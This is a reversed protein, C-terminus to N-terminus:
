RRRAGTRASSSLLFVAAGGDATEGPTDRGRTFGRSLARQGERRASEKARRVLGARAEPHDGRGGSQAARAGRRPETLPQPTPGPALLDIGAYLGGVQQLALREQDRRRVGEETDKAREPDVGLAILPRAASCSRRNTPRACRTISARPSCNWRIAATTRVFMCSPAPSTRKCSISLAIPPNSASRRLGLDATGRERWRRAACRAANRRRLLDQLRLPRRERDDGSRQRHHHRRHRGGAPMALRVSRFPRLRDAAGVGARGRFQRRRARSTPAFRHLLHETLTAVPPGILLSVAAIATLINAQENGLIMLSAGLPMLVFAFEGAGTLISGARFAEADTTCTARFLAWVIGAKLVTLFLAAGVILWINAYVLTFDIGIGIGMFFLALLLGRFPEIDAELEHRYNSEALMVGALFAGLAMSMGVAQMLLGTGLVILLAAATMVERAGSQALLRFLPNLLYRGAIVVAGIAAAM